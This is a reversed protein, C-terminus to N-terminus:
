AMSEAPDKVEARKIRRTGFKVSLWDVAPREAWLYIGVALVAVLTVSVVCGLGTHIALAPVRKAVV